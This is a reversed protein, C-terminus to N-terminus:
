VLYMFLFQIQIISEDTFKNIKNYILCLIKYINKLLMKYSKNVYPFYKFKSIYYCCIKGLM